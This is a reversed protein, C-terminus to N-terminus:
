SAKASLLRQAEETTLAEVTVVKDRSAHGRVIRVQTKAVGLAEALLAVTAANAQGKAPPATVRLLLVDERYGVIQNTSAGPQVKVKFSAKKVSQRTM